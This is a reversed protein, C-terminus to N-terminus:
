GGVTPLVLTCGIRGATAPDLANRVERLAIRDFALASHDAFDLRCRWQVLVNNQGDIFVNEYPTAIPDYRSAIKTYAVGPPEPVSNLKAILPSGVRLQLMSPAEGEVLNWLADGVLPSVRRLNEAAQLLGNLTGGKTPSALGVITHVNAAGGLFKVYYEALIGGQSHGVLDVQGAGTATRVKEVFAALEAASSEVPQGGYATRGLPSTYLGYNLSFVCYGENKLLPSLTAWNVVMLSGTSPVLIVPRPHQASPVCSWDNAGAPAAEWDHPVGSPMRYTVPLEARAAAPVAALVILSLLSLLLARPM